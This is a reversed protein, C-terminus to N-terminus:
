PADRVARIHYKFTLAGNPSIAVHATGGPNFDIYFAQAKSDADITSSWYRYATGRWLRIQARSRSIPLVVGLCVM